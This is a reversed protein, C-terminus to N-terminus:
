PPLPNKLQYSSKCDASAEHKGEAEGEKKNEKEEEASEMREDNMQMKKHLRKLMEHQMDTTNMLSTYSELCPLDNSSSGEYVDMFNNTLNILMYLVQMRKEGNNSDIIRSFVEIFFKRARYEVAGVKGKKKKYKLDLVKLVEYAFKPRALLLTNFYECFNNKMFVKRLRSKTSRLNHGEDLVLLGPSERLVKAMYKRHAYNSDERMLTLIKYPNKCDAGAEHKGEAEGEKKNEREEEASEMREDNMQMKKHLRKLMEHKGKKKKYKPDLVKLMEYAFKPRALLLTNFYECFNNKMLVKRLRSKTSRPNHGEDLVLLGPSERLVKAMYNRHAYNSDKAIRGLGHKGEDEGEKKNEKEKEASEMREDNMHMKKHLRKLMEHKLVEYAFKSRALLLTNFYECFNNQFLTGFLLIRLETQVKMFVKRLRSKTSRPNQGEDLVLLRPSERLIKCDTGAEHKGEAEGEKNNDREEEASEMREDNMQMKKHLRKMLVKRLMSKTSRPNHGEDLVLLGPSERLVKTMYKRHAYKSDERMLTLFSTYGMILVSPHSHWKQIKELCDLVHKVDETSKPMRLFVM